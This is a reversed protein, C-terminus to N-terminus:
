AANSQANASAPRVGEEAKWELNRALRLATAALIQTSAPKVLHEAAGLGLTAARDRDVSHVLIPIAATHAQATMNAIVSLGPRDPLNIDLIVLAIDEAKSAILDLGQAATAAGEL